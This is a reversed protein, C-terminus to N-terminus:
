DTRRLVLAREEPPLDDGADMLSPLLDAETTLARFARGITV